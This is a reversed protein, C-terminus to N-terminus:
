GLASQQHRGGQVVRAAGVGAVARHPGLGGDPTEDLTGDDESEEDADDDRVQEDDDDDVATAVGLVDVRLHPRTNYPGSDRVKIKM